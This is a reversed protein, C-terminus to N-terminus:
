ACDDGVTTDRGDGDNDDSSADSNADFTLFLQLLDRGADSHDGSSVSSTGRRQLSFLQLMLDEPSVMRHLWGGPRPRQQFCLAYIMM